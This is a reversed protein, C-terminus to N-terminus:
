KSYTKSNRGSWNKGSWNRRGERGERSKSRQRQNMDSEKRARAMEERGAPNAYPKSNVSTTGGQTVTTRTIVPTPEMSAFVQSGATVLATLTLITLKKM